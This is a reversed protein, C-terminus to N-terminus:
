GRVRYIVVDEDQFQISGLASFKALGDTGYKARERPGMLIYTVGYQHLIERAEQPDTTQYLRQVSEQRGEFPVRSGRWQEEHFTWGLVTPIGTSASVRGYESYDDGVAEVIIDGPRYNENLWQIGRLEGQSSAAMYALGDLTANGGLGSTKTYTAAAPYYLSAILGVALLGGWGYGALRLALGATGYRSGLYYLAYSCAVALLPWAQYSLKFVTNMRGGFLDLLYFLEPGMLLLMALALLVLPFARALGSGVSMLAVESSTGLGGEGEGTQSSDGATEDGRVRLLVVYVAAAMMVALPLLHLLRQWAMGFMELLDWVLVGEILSWLLWPLLVLAVAIVPEQWRRPRRRLALALEWVVFPVAIFLYLGWIVLFHFPRTVYEEVPVVGQAQSDFTLYFPLYLLLALAVVAVVAPLAVLAGRPVSREQAYGKALAVGVFLAGFVPLDWLNIFGLAGLVLALLVIQGAASRWQRLGLRLPAVFFNLVLGSFVLVFPLSMVHPHLDGLLFSFFPFETITYDLSRGNEVTDIVRTARWWWWGPESPYWYSSQSPGDLGKIDVWNWFGQSGAGTARTFELAGELNAIGLLLLVSLLGSIVAGRLRGGALRVVNTTLGFIGIAALAPVLVMALNYGVATPVAALRVLGGFMLYGFYYYSVSEGALWPDNPPFYQSVVTANLFAFDMPQETHNIAADHSRIVVWIAFVGLFVLEAMLLTRWERRLFKQMESQRLWVMRVAVAALAVLIFLLTVLSNPILQTSALLWLPYFALLLGLPKTLTYGRDPLWPVLTYLIPFALLGLLEVVLLWALVDLM